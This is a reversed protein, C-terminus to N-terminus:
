QWRISNFSIVKRMEDCRMEKMMETQYRETRDKGVNNTTKLHSNLTGGGILSMMSGGGGVGGEALIPALGPLKLTAPLTMMAAAADVAVGSGKPASATSDVDAVAAASTASETPAASASASAPTSSAASASASATAM